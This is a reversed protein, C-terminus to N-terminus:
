KLINKNIQEEYKDLSVNSIYKYQILQSEDRNDPTNIVNIAFQKEEKLIKVLFKLLELRAKEFTECEIEFDIANYGYHNVTYTPLEGYIWNETIYFKLDRDKHYDLTIFEKWIITLEKIYKEILQQNFIEM